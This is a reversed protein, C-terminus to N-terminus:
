LGPNKARIEAVRREMWERTQKQRQTDPQRTMWAVFTELEAVGARLGDLYRANGYSEIAKDLDDRITGIM